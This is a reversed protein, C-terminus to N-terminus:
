TMNHAELSTADLDDIDTTCGEFSNGIINTQTFNTDDWGRLCASFANGSVQNYVAPSTTSQVGVASTVDASYFMNGSIANANSGAVLSIAPGKFGNLQNGHIASHWILGGIAATTWPDIFGFHNGSINFVCATSANYIGYGANYFMNGNITARGVSAANYIGYATSLPVVIYNGHICCYSADEASDQLEIAISGAVSRPSFMCNAIINNFGSLRIGKNVNEFYSNVVRGGNPGTQATDFAVGIAVDGLGTVQLHDICFDNATLATGLNLGVFNAVTGTPYSCQVDRITAGYCGGRFEAINAVHSIGLKELYTNEYINRMTILKCSTNGVDGNIWFGSMGTLQGPVTGTIAADNGFDFISTDCSAHSIDLHAGHSYLFVGGDTVANSIAHGLTTMNFVYNDPRFYISGHGYNTVMEDITADLVSACDTGSQTNVGNWNNRGCYTSGSKYFTYTPNFTGSSTGGSTGPSTLEM